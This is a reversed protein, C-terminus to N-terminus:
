YSGIRYLHKETRIFLAGDAAAFSALSREELSNKALQRFEKSAKVVICTGEENQFYIRGDAYLPSASYAGGIREQWRVHGTKADLCSAIGKDSVMYLEEGVLLPSPTLSVDKRTTWAVHSKTVNGQGDPRIALLGPSDFGTCVFVLGHGFVPRPVVSYGEYDVHWIEQGTNPDLASVVGSGPSVVQKQGNVMILLPTCFSFRRNTEGPRATKWLVKGSERDLAVVFCQDGGDCNFIIANDVLIPSGGNGHVPAYKLSTNQWLVKGSLDLCATGQHGFHVFLRQGDVLPTPSAHSNKRHIGPASLGDQHFVETQWLIKGSTADLCLAQLSQDKKSHSEQPVSTTLYIRSNVVVPSSWGSGPIPQKWVVNKTTSWELPLNGSPVIGQGTPGRFEPWSEALARAGTFLGAASLVLVLYRM